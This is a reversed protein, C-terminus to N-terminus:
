EPEYWGVTRNKKHLYQERVREIDALTVAELQPVVSEFWAYDGLQSVDDGFSYM